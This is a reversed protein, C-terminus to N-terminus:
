GTLQPMKLCLIRKSTESTHKMSMQLGPWPQRKTENKIRKILIRLADLYASKNQDLLRPGAGLTFKRTESAFEDFSLDSHGVANELAKIIDGAAGPGQHNQLWIGSSALELTRPILSAEDVTSRNVGVSSEILQALYGRPPAKGQSISELSLLTQLAVWNKLYALSPTKRFFTQLTSACTQTLTNIARTRLETLNAAWVTGSSSAAGALFEEPSLEKGPSAGSIDRAEKSALFRQWSVPPLSKLIGAQDTVIGRPGKIRLAEDLQLTEFGLRLCPDLTGRTGISEILIEM